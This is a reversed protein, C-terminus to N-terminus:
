KKQLNGLYACAWFSMRSQKIFQGGYVAIIQFHTMQSVPSASPREMYDSIKERIFNVMKGPQRVLCAKGSVPGVQDM